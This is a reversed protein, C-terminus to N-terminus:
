YKYYTKGNEKIESIYERNLLNFIRDKIYKVDIDNKFLDKIYEDILVSKILENELIKKDKCSKINKMIKSDIIFHKNSKYIYENNQIIQNKSNDNTSQNELKNIELNAREYCNIKNNEYSFDLNVKIIDENILDKREKNEKVLIKLNILFLIYARLITSFKSNHPLWEILEKYSIFKKKNFLMLICAQIYNVFLVYKGLFNMECTSLTQSININRKPYQEKYLTINEDFPNGIIQSNMILVQNIEEKSLTDYSFLNFTINDKLQYINSNEKLDKILRSCKIIYKTELITRLREELKEEIDINFKFNSIRKIMFKITYNIYINKGNLNTLIIEFPEQFIKVSDQSYLIESTFIALIFEFNNVLKYNIMKIFTEKYKFQAQKSCHFVDKFINVLQNIFDYLQNIYMIGEKINYNKPKIIRKTFYNYYANFFVQFFNNISSNKRRSFQEIKKIIIYNKETLIIDFFQENTFIAKSLKDMFYKQILKENLQNAEQEGFLIKFLNVSENIQESLHNFYLVLEEVNLKYKTAMEDLKKEENSIFFSIIEKLKEKEGISKIIKIYTLLDENNDKISNLFESNYTIINSQSLLSIFEKQNIYKNFLSLIQSNFRTKPTILLNKMKQCLNEISKISNYFYLIDERLNKSSQKSQINSIKKKIFQNISKMIEEFENNINIQFLYNYLSIYQNSDFSNNLLSELISIPNEDIKKTFFEKENRKKYELKIM